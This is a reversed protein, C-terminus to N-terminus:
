KKRSMGILSGVLAGLQAAFVGLCTVLVGVLYIPVALLGFHAYLLTYIYIYALMFFLSLIAGSCGVKGGEHRGASLKHTQYSIYASLPIPVVFYLLVLGITVQALAGFFSPIHAFTVHILIIQALALLLSSFRAILRQQFPNLLIKEPRHPSIRIHQLQTGQREPISM